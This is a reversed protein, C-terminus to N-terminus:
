GDVKEKLSPYVAILQKRNEPSLGALIKEIPRDPPPEKVKGAARREAAREKEMLVLAHMAAELEWQDEGWEAPDKALMIKVYHEALERNNM